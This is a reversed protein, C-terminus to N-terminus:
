TRLAAFARAAAVVGDAAPRPGGFRAADLQQQCAALRERLPEPIAPLAPGLRLLEAFAAAADEAAGPLAAVLAALRRAREARRRRRQSWSRGGLVAGALGALWVAHWWGPWAAAARQAAADAALLAVVREPLDAPAPLVQLPLPATALTEFAATGPDFVCLPVPPVERLGPRVVLLEYAFERTAERDREFCGQVAFGALEPWPVRVEPVAGFRGTASLTVTLTGGLPVVAASAHATVAVQGVLGSWAAPRGITPVPEVVLAKGPAAVKAEQRDVPERGRLFHETFATAFAYRVAATLEHRGPQRPLYEVELVVATRGAAADAPQWLRRAGATAVARGTAVAPWRLEHREGAVLWPAEVLVPLDLPQQLLPVAREALFATDCELHLRVPVPEGVFVSREPAEVLLAVPPAQAWLAAALWAWCWGARWGSM